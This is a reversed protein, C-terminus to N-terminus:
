VIQNLTYVNAVCSINKRFGVQGEHLARERDLREM